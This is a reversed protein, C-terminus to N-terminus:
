RRQMIVLNGSRAFVKKAKGFVTVVVPSDLKPKEVRSALPNNEAHADYDSINKISIEDKNKFPYKSPMRRSHVFDFGQENALAELVAYEKTTVPALHVANSVRLLEAFVQEKTDEPIQYTSFLALTTDFTGDAFPLNRGDAQVFTREAVNGIRRKLEVLDKHMASDSAFHSDISDISDIRPAIFRMERFRRSMPDHALDLDVIRASSGSRRVEGSLNSGGCGFNLVTQDELLSRDFGLQREYMSLPRATIIQSEMGEQGRKIRLIEM